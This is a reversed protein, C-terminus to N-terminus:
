PCSMETTPTTPFIDPGRWGGTDGTPELPFLPRITVQYAQEGERYGQTIKGDFLNYIDQAAQGTLQTQQGNRNESSDQGALSALSPSSLPWVPASDEMRLSPTLLIAISEPQYPTRNAPEYAKLRQYTEVLAPSVPFDNSSGALISLAYLDVKQSRWSNIMLHTTGADAIPPFEYAEIDVDFFGDEEFETLFACVEDSSLQAEYLVRQSDKWASTIIRGDNYLVLKPITSWAFPYPTFGPGEVWQVLVPPAQWRHTEVLSPASEPLLTMKPLWLLEKAIDGGNAITVEGEQAWPVDEKWQQFVARQTRLAFHNGMDEVRSTPLGFLTLPDSFSFYYARIADNEELLGQRLAVIEEWSAEAPDFGSTLQLPTQRRELLTEDFGSNSLEDFVNVVSAVGEEARWQLVLKQFAQTVFGDQQYRRSIPYGVTQLGGLRQFESWFRAEEDDIVSFGGRDAATQTFFHGNPIDYDPMTELRRASDAAQTSPIAFIPTVGMLLAVLLCLFLRRQVNM